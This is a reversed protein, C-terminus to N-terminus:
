FATIHDFSTGCLIGQENNPVQASKMAFVPHFRGKEIVLPKWSPRNLRLSEKSAESFKM